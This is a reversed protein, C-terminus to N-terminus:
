HLHCTGLSVKVNFSEDNTILRVSLTPLTNLIPCAM